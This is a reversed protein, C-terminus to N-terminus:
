SRQAPEAAKEKESPEIVRVVSAKSFTVKVGRDDDVRLVVKDSETDVSVVTGYIGAATVVRDNKKLAEVMQKRKREQQQQPRLIMFYFLILVPTFLMIMSGLGSGGDQGAPPNQQAFLFPLEAFLLPM